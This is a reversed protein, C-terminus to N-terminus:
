KWRTDRKKEWVNFIYWLFVTVNMDVDKKM